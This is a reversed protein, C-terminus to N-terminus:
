APVHLDLMQARNRAAAPSVCYEGAVRWIDHGHDAWTEVFQERPMLLTSAFVNAEVAPRGRCARGFYMDGDVYGPARYHLFYHGIAHAFTIHDRTASTHVPVYVTFDGKGRVWLEVPCDLVAATGGLVRLLRRVDVPVEGQAGHEAAIRRTYEDIAAWSLRSPAPGPATM